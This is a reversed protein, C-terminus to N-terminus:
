NSNISWDTVFKDLEGKATMLKIATVIDQPLAPRNYQKQMGISKMPHGWLTTNQSFYIFVEKDAREVGYIVHYM